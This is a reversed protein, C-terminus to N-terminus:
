FIGEDEYIYVGKNRYGRPEPDSDGTLFRKELKLVIDMAHDCAMHYYQLETKKKDFFTPKFLVSADDRVGNLKQKITDMNNWKSSLVDICATMAVRYADKSRKDQIRRHVYRATSKMLILMTESVDLISTSSSM